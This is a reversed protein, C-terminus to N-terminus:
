LRHRCGPIQLWLRANSGDRHPHSESWSQGIGCIWVQLRVSRWEHWAAFAPALKPGRPEEAGEDWSRVEKPPLWARQGALPLTRWSPGVLEPLASPEEVTPQEESRAAD